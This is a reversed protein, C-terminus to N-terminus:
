FIYVFGKVACNASLFRSGKGNREKQNKYFLYFARSFPTPSFMLNSSKILIASVNRAWVIQRGHFIVHVRRGAGHLLHVPCSIEELARCSPFIVSANQGQRLLIRSFYFRSPMTKQAPYWRGEFRSNSNLNKLVPCQMGQDEVSGRQRMMFVKM